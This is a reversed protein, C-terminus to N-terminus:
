KSAQESLVAIRRGLSPRLAALRDLARDFVSRQYPALAVTERPEFGHHELLELLARHTPAHVHNLFSDRRYIPLTGAARQRSVEVNRPQYGMLLALRNLWSGLNPTSVWFWGDKLVRDTEEFLHDYYRLHEILGFSVVLDVSRDGLPIPDSEVDVDFTEIGRSDAVKRSEPDVDIGYIAEAGLHAGLASAFGGRGCGVDLITDISDRHDELTLLQSELRDLSQLTSNKRLDQETLQSRFAPPLDASNPSTM